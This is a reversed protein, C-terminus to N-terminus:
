LLVIDKYFQEYNKGAEYKGKWFAYANRRYEQQQEDTLSIYNKIISAADHIEFNEPLLFGCSESVAESTGGVNTAVVPIGASLAEMISVPVGESLSVNIFLDIYNSAYFDLIEANPVIGKIDVQTRKLRTKVCQEIEQRLLGDGFHIWRIQFDSELEAL